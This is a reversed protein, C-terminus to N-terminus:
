GHELVQLAMAHTPDIELVKRWLRKEEDLHGILHEWKALNAWADVFVPDLRTAQVFSDRAERWRDQHAHQTLWMAAVGQNNWVDPDHPHRQVLLQSAQWAEDWLAAAALADGEAQALSRAANAKETLYTGVAPNLQAAERDARLTMQLQGRQAYAQATQFIWDARLPVLIWWLGFGGLAILGLRLGERRTAGLRSALGYCQKTPDSSTSGGIVCIGTFVAAWLSTSMASFNFQNQVALGLAGAAMAERTWGATADFAGSFAQRAVARVIQFGLALVCLLGLLGMTSAFQILDNHADAQTVGPGAARVYALTRYPRFAEFFTDPGTGLWLRDRWVHMGAKWGELRAANSSERRSLLVAARGRAGPLLTLGAILILPLSWLTAQVRLREELKQWTRRSWQVALFAYAAAWGLWASRSLSLIWGAGICGICLLILFVPIGHSRTRSRMRELLAAIALPWAMMCLAGMYLPNGLSSWARGGPARPMREFIELDSFQMLGYLGVIAGATLAAWFTRRQLAPSDAQATLWYLTAFCAMPVAGFVYIRYAGWLSLVPDLSRLTSAATVAFFCLLPVDLPTRRIAGGRDILNWLWLIALLLTGLYVLTLKPLDFADHLDLWFLLPVAFVLAPIIRNAWRSFADVPHTPLRAAPTKM